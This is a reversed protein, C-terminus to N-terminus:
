SWSDCLDESWLQLVYMITFPFCLSPANAILLVINSTELFDGNEKFVYGEAVLGEIM